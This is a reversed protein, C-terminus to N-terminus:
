ILFKILMIVLADLITAGLVGRAAYLHDAWIFVFFILLNPIVTLSLLSPLARIAVITKIFSPLTYSDFRTLYVIVFTILPALIGLAFGISLKDFRSKM